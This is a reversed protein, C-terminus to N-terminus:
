ADAHWRNLAQYARLFTEQTLDLADDPSRTLRLLFRYVQDQYRTVLVSFARSEGSQALAICQNDDLHSFNRM